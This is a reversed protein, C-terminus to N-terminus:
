GRRSPTSAGDAVEPKAVPWSPHDRRRQQGAETVLQYNLSEMLHGWESEIRAVSATPLKSKWGGSSATGVFPIDKRHNKTSVWQDAQKSELERMHQASSRSIVNALRDPGAEINFFEAIRALDRAPNEIMDEYRLLLFKPDKARASIWTGVNEAWTGWDASSLRGSVFDDVYRDLPYSDDIHRYKRVFNYYSLAVDRPDRVVYIVRRYRHDFYEHSKICRPRPIGKLRRNSQAEADPVLREINAFTAPEEPHLLNAILFRTWTNGSRPYSVIFTDDPYVALNRGAIDKGLAYKLVYKIGYLTTTEEPGLGHSTRNTLFLL